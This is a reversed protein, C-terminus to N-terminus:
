HKRSKNKRTKRNTKTIYRKTQKKSPKRRHIRKKTKKGGDQKGEKIKKSVISSTPFSPKISKQSKVVKPRNDRENKGVFFSEPAQSTLTGINTRAFLNKDNNLLGNQILWFYVEKLYFKIQGCTLVNYGPILTEVDRGLGDNIVQGTQDLGCLITILEDLNGGNKQYIHVIFDLYIKVTEIALQDSDFGQIDIGINNTFLISLSAFLHRYYMKFETMAKEANRKTKDPIKTMINQEWRIQDPLFTLITFGDLIKSLINIDIGTTKDIKYAPNSTIWGVCAADDDLFSDTAEKATRKESLFRQVIAKETENTILILAAPNSEFIAYRGDSSFGATKGGSLIPFGDLSTKRPKYKVESSEIITEVGTEADTKLEFTLGDEQGYLVPYLEVPEFSISGIEMLKNKFGVNDGSTILQELENILQIYPFIRRKYESALQTINEAMLQGAYSYLFLSKAYSNIELLFKELNFNNKFYILRLSRETLEKLPNSSLFAPKSIETIGNPRNYWCIVQDEEAQRIALADGSSFGFNLENELQTIGQTPMRNSLIYTIAIPILDGFAKILYLIILKNNADLQQQPNFVIGYRKETSSRRAADPLNGEGLMLADNMLTTVSARGPVDAFKTFVQGTKTGVVFGAGQSKLWVHGINCEFTNDVAFNDDYLTEDEIKTIAGDIRAISKSQEKGETRIFKIDTKDKESENTDKIALYLEKPVTDICIRLGKFLTEDNLDILKKIRDENGKESRAITILLPLPIKLKTKENILKYLKSRAAKWNKDLGPTHTTSVKIEEVLLDIINQISIRVEQDAINFGFLLSTDLGISNERLFQDLCAIRIPDLNYLILFDHATGYVAFLVKKLFSLVIKINAKIQDKTAADRGSYIEYVKKDIYDNLSRYTQDDSSYVASYQTLQEDVNKKLSEFQTLVVGHVKERFIDLSEINAPEIVQKIIETEELTPNQNLIGVPQGFLNDTPQGFITTTTPDADVEM